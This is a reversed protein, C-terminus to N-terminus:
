DFFNSKIKYKNYILDFLKINVLKYTIKGKM